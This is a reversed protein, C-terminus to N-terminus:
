LIIFHEKYISKPNCENILANFCVLKDSEGKEYVQSNTLRDSMATEKKNSTKFM